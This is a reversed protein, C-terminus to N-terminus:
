GHLLGDLVAQPVHQSNSIDLGPVVDVEPLGAVLAAQQAPGTGRGRGARQGRALDPRPVIGGRRGVLSSEVEGQHGILGDACRLPPSTALAVPRVGAGMLPMTEVLSGAATAQSAAMKSGAPTAISRRNSSAM